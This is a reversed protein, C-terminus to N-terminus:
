ERILDQAKLVAYTQAFVEVLQAHDGACPTRDGARVATVIRAATDSVKQMGMNAALGKISHAERELDQDAGTEVITSMDALRARLEDIFTQMLARVDDDGLADRLEQLVGLNLLDAEQEPM